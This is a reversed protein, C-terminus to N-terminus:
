AIPLGVGVVKIGCRRGSKTESKLLNNGIGTGPPCDVAGFASYESGDKMIITTKLVVVPEDKTPYHVIESVNKAVGRRDNELRFQIGQSNVYVSPGAKSPIINVGALPLGFSMATQVALKVGNETLPELSRIMSAQEKWPLKYQDELQNFILSREVPIEDGEKTAQEVKEAIAQEVVEKVKEAEEPSVEIVPQSITVETEKKRTM